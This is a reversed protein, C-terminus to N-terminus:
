NTVELVKMQIKKFFFSVTDNKKKGMLAIGLPSLCSLLGVKPSSKGPLVVTVKSEKQTALDYLRVTSGVGIVKTAKRKKVQDAEEFISFITLHNVTLSWASKLYTYSCFFMPM